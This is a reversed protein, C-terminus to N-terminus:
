RRRPSSTSCNDKLLQDLEPVDGLAKAVSLDECAKEREGRRLRLMRRSPSRWEIRCRKLVWRPASPVAVITALATGALLTGLVVPSRRSGDTM